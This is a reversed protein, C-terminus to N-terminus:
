PANLTEWWRDCLRAQYLQLSSTGNWNAGWYARQSQFDLSAFAESWYDSYENLTPAVRWVRPSQAAPKLEVFFLQDKAWQGASGGYTSVFAWGRVAPDYVRGFHTGPGWGMESNAFVIMRNGWGQAANVDVAIFQDCSATIEDNGAGCPDFGVVLEEGGAGYAWGSHVCNTNLRVPTGSFDKAWAYPGNWPAANSPAAGKCSGVVVVSGSMSMDVYNPTPITAYRDKLRGIIQGIQNPPSQPAADKDYVIVDELGVCQGGPAMSTCIQFAWYRMDRSPAGEFGNIAAGAGPYDQAFDHLTVPSGGLVEVKRLAAGERFYLTTETGPVGSSDWQLENSEGVSLTRVVTRDSLRYIAAGGDGAFATVYEGTINAPSWRSYGNTYSSSFGGADAADSVRTVTIGTATLTFPSGAAPVAGSPPPIQAATTVTELTLSECPVVPGAPDGSARPDGANGPDAGRSDAPPTTPDAASATDGGAAAHTGGLTGTCAAGASLAVLTSFSRM